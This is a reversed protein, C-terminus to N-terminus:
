GASRTASPAPVSVPLRGAHPGDIRRPQEGPSSATPSTAPRRPRPPPTSHAPSTAPEAPSPTPRGPTTWRKPAPTSPPTTTASPPTHPRSTLTLSQPGPPPSTHHRGTSPPPRSPLPWPGDRNASPSTAPRRAHARAAQAALRLGKPPAPRHPRSRPRGPPTSTPRVSTSDVNIDCDIGGEADAHAQVHQLLMESTGDASWLLHRKHVTKWPGFREPLERWPTGTSLRHIIGNIVQRHDRRRGCRNNSVPLLPELVAWEADTLDARNM